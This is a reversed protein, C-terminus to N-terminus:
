SPDEKGNMAIIEWETINVMLRSHIDASPQSSGAATPLM